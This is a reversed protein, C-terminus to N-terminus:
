INKINYESDIFLSIILTLVVKLNLILEKSDIPANDIMLLFILNKAM